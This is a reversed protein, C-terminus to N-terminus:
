PQAVEADLGLSRIKEAATEAEVRTEFPGVRVRTFKGKTGKIEQKYAPLAADVLKTHANRANNEDAFLGANVLFKKESAAASAGPTAKPAAAPKLKPLPVPVSTQSAAKAPTSAVPAPKPAPVASAKPQTQLAASAPASPPTAQAPLVPSSAAAKPLSAAPAPSPAATSAPSSTSTSAPATPSGPTSAPASASASAPASAALVAPASALPEPKASFDAVKGQALNRADIVKPTNLPLQTADPLVMKLGIAGGVLALNIIALWVGRMRSSSQLTLMACAEPVTTNAALAASMRKRCAAHMLANGFLGPVLVSVLGLLGVLAIQVTSSFQFVLRGIGFILLSAGVLAGIYALAAGWLQRFAMWNFTLFAAAWNWSPGARDSAEFRSFLAEYYATNVPGIAARYLDMTSSSESRDLSTPAALQQPADHAPVASMIDPVEPPNANVM